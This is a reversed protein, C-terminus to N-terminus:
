NSKANAFWNSLLHFFLFNFYFSDLSTFDSQIGVSSAQHWHPVKATKRLDRGQDIEAPPHWSAGAAEQSLRLWPDALPWWWLEVQGQSFHVILLCVSKKKSLDSISFYDIAKISKDQAPWGCCVCVCACLLLSFCKCSRQQMFDM